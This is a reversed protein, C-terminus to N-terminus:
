SRSRFVLHRSGGYNIALGAISGAALAMWVHVPWVHPADVGLLALAAAYTAWNAAMGTLQCAFYRALEPMHASADARAFTWVRNLWWTALMAPLFSLPRGAYPDVGGAIVLSLLGGDIVFGISGVVAFRGLQAIM